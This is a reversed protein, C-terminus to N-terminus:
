QEGDERFDRPTKRARHGKTLVTKVVRAVPDLVYTVGDVLSCHAGANMDERVRKRIGSRIAEIDIGHVREMQRIVVHDPVLIDPKAM